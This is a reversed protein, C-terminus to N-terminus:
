RQLVLCFLIILFVNKISLMVANRKILKARLECTRMDGPVPLGSGEAMSSICDFEFPRNIGLNVEAWLFLKADVAASPNNTKSEFKLENKMKPPPFHVSKDTDESIQAFVPSM